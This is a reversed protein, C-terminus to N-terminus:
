RTAGGGGGTPDTSGPEPSRGGGKGGGGENPSDTPDPRPRDNPDNGDNSDGEDVEGDGSNDVIVVTPTRGPSETTVTGPGSPNGPGSQPVAPEETQEPSPEPTESGQELVPVVSPEDESITRQPLLGLTTGAVLVVISAAGVLHALGGGPGSGASSGYGGSGGAGPPPWAADIKSALEAAFAASPSAFAIGALMAPVSAKGKKNESCVDCKKSHRTIAKRMRADIEEGYKTVLSDLDACDSRATKSLVVAELAEQVSDKLRNVLIYAYAPRVGLMPAIEASSLGHRVTLEFVQHDRPNLTAAADWVLDRMEDSEIRAVPDPLTAVDHAAAYEDHEATPVARKRSEILSLAANRAIAYLWGRFAAPEKLTDLREVAKLFTESTVDEADASNRLMGLAFDYIKPLYADYLESFALRDGSQARSVLDEELAVVM